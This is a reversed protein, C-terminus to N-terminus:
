TRNELPYVRCGLEEFRRKMEPHTARASVVDMQVGSRDMAGFANLVSVTIGDFCMEGTLVTLIRMRM